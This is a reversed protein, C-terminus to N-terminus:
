SHKVIRLVLTTKNLFFDYTGDSKIYFLTSVASAYQTSDSDLTIGEISGSFDAYYFTVYFGDAAGTIVVDKICLEAENDPNTTMLGSLGGKGIIRASTLETPQEEEDLSVVEVKLLNNTMDVKFNFTGGKNLYVLYSSFRVLTSDSSSDLTLTLMGYSADTFVVYDNKAVKVNNYAVLGSADVEGAVFNGNQMMYGGTSVTGGYAYIAIADCSPVYEILYSGAKTIKIYDGDIAVYDLSEGYISCLHDSKITTNSTLNAINFEENASFQVTSMYAKLGNREIYQIIDSANNVKENTLYWTIENYDATGKAFTYEDLTVAARDSNFAAKYSTGHNPGFTKTISILKDGDRDFEIGFRAEYDFVIENNTGKHFDFTNWKTDVELDEYDYVINNVNDVVTMVDGVKFYHYGYIFTEKDGEYYSVKNLPYEDNNVKVVLGPYKYGSVELHFGNPTAVLDLNAKGATLVKGDKDVNGNGFYKFKYTADGPKTITIIDGVAVELQEYKWVVESEEKVVLTFVGKQVGNVSVAVQDGSRPLVLSERTVPNKNADFYQQCGECYYYAEMGDYFYSPLVEEVLNGYVHTHVSSSSSSSSSSGSSSNSSSSSSSSSTTSSSSESSSSESSETSSSPQSSEQPNISTSPAPSENCAVLGLSFALGLVAFFSFKKM